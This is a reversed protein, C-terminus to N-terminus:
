LFSHLHILIFVRFHFSLLSRMGFAYNTTGPDPLGTKRLAERVNLRSERKPWPVKKKEEGSVGGLELWMKEKDERTIIGKEGGWKGVVWSWLLAQVVLNDFNAERYAYYWLFL